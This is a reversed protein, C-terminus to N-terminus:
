TILEKNSCKIAKIIKPVKENIQIILFLRFIQASSTEVYAVCYFQDEHKLNWNELIM